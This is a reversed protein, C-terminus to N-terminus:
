VGVEEGVALDAPDFLLDLHLGLFVAFRDALSITIRDNRMVCRLDREVQRPDLAFRRAYERRIGAWAKYDYDDTDLRLVLQGRIPQSSVKRAGYPTARKKREKSVKVAAKHCTKCKGNSYRGETHGKPCLKM